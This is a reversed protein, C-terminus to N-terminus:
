SQDEDEEGKLIVHRKGLTKILKDLRLILLDRCDPPLASAAEVVLDRILRPSVLGAIKLKQQNEIITNITQRTERLVEVIARAEGPKVEGSSEYRRLIGILSQLVELNENLMQLTRRDSEIAQLTLAELDDIQTTVIPKPSSKKLWRNFTYYSVPDEPERKKYEQYIRTVPIGKKYMERYEDAYPSLDLKAQGPAKSVLNSKYKRPL